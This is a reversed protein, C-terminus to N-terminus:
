EVGGKFHAKGVPKVKKFARNEEVLGEGMWTVGDRDVGNPIENDSALASQAESTDEANIVGVPSDKPIDLGTVEEKKHKARKHGELGIRESTTFDCEECKFQEKKENELIKEAESSSVITVFEWRDHMDEAVLNDVEKLSKPALGGINVRQGNFNYEPCAVESSNFVIKM